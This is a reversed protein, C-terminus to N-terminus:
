CISRKDNRWKKIADVDFSNDGKAGDDEEENEAVGLEKKEVTGEM